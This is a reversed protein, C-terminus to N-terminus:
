ENNINQWPYAVVQEIVKDFHEESKEQSDYTHIVGWAYNYMILLEKDMNLVILAEEDIVSALDYNYLLIKTTDEESLIQLEDVFSCTDSNYLIYEQRQNFTTVRKRVYDLSLSDSYEVTTQEETDKRVLFLKKEYPDQSPNNEKFRSFFVKKVPIDIAKEKYDIKKSQSCGLLIIFNLILIKDM